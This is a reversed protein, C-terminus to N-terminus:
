LSLRLASLSFPQEAGLVSKMKHLLLGSAGQTFFGYLAACGAGNQEALWYLESAM